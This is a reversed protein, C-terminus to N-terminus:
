PQPGARENEPGKEVSQAPDGLRGSAEEPGPVREQAADTVADGLRQVLDGLVARRQRAVTAFSTRAAVYSAAIV